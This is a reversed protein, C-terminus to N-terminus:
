SRMTLILIGGIIMLGGLAIRWTFQENLFIFSLLLTIIISGKDILAVESVTGIKIARYYFIWSIATTVASVGLLLVDKKTLNSFDKYNNFVISNLGIFVFVFLTRIALGTDAVVNKLGAKAVVSTLGAFVMAILAFIQYQKM